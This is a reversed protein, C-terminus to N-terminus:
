PEDLVVGQKVRRRIHEVCTFNEVPSCNLALFSAEYGEELSGIARSPFIARTTTEVWMKLLTLNDFVNLKHLNMAEPLSTDAHDSGIAIAVGQSHLVRLNHTQVERALSLLPSNEPGSAHSHGHAPPEHEHPSTGHGHREDGVSMFQAAVTTTVVVVHKQAAVRADEESLRVRSVEEPTTILWGPLHNIEDVSALVAHHFDTATEVHTSVRLKERHAAEVIQPLLAPDLGQRASPNPYDRNKEFDELHALYTKIFGPHRATIAPWKNRLDSETDILFYARNNFWGRGVSSLVPAYRAGRLVNEYLSVPWGGFSTLGGNAFAVDISTSLNIKDRIRDSFDPINNPNKVYFVGAKLYTQIASDINWLGEVNHNHAEGFPPIVFGGALDIIEDVHTPMAKTLLGGVSYFNDQRFGQGTFWQGNIFQYIKGHQLVPRSSQTAATTAGSTSLVVALWMVLPRVHPLGVVFADM